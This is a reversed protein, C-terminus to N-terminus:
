GRLAIPYVGSYQVVNRGPIDAAAVRSPIDNDDLQSVWMPEGDVQIVTFAPNENWAHVVDYLHKAADKAADMGIGFINVTLNFLWLGEGNATQGSGTLHWVIAPFDALEHLGVDPSIKPRPTPQPDLADYSQEILKGMYMEADIM